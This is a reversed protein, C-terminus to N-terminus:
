KPIILKQGVRIENSTLGNATKIKEIGSDNGYYNMSIRYLTESEAVIHTTSNAPTAPKKEETVTEEKPQPTSPKENDQKPPDQTENVVPKEKDSTTNTEDDQKEEESDEDNKDDTGLLGSNSTNKDISSNTNNEVRFNSDESASSSDSGFYFNYIVFVFILVPIFTFVGLIVNIMTHSSARNQKGKKRRGHRDLRSPLSTDLQEDLEIEKRHEEFEVKYDSNKM